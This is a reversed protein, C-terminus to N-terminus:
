NNKLRNCEYLIFKYLYINICHESICCVFLRFLNCLMSFMAIISIIKNVLTLVQGTQLIVHSPIFDICIFLAFLYSLQGHTITLSALKSKVLNQHSSIQM